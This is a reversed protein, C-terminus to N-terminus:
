LRQANFDYHLERPKHLFHGQVFDIGNHRLHTLTQADQVAVAIVKIGHRHATIIIDRIIAVNEPNANLEHILSHDLKIYDLALTHLYSFAERQTGFHELAVHCHLQRLRRIFDECEEPNRILDATNIEFTLHSSIGRVRRLQVRLWQIFDPDRISDFSLKIFYSSHGHNTHQDILQLLSNSIVWRDIATMLRNDQAALLFNDPLIEIGNDDLMRLFLEYYGNGSGKFATIPQCVLTFADNKLALAIRDPWSGPTFPSQQGAQKDYACIRNGGSLIAKNCAFRAQSVLHEAEAAGKQENVCMGISCGVSSMTPDLHSFDHEHILRRLAKAQDIVEDRTKDKFLLMFTADDNYAVLCQREQFRILLGATEALLMQTIETGARSRLQELDDIEMHLLSVGPATNRALSQKLAGLFYAQSYLGTLSDHSEHLLSTVQEGSNLATVITAVHRRGDDKQNPESASTTSQPAGKPLRAPPLEHQLQDILQKELTRLRRRLGLDELERILVHRCREQENLAIFDRSGNELSGTIIASDVPSDAYSLLPAAYKFHALKGFVPLTDRHPFDAAVFLMDWHHHRLATYAERIDRLQAALIVLQDARLRKLLRRARKKSTDLILLRLPSKDTGISIDM